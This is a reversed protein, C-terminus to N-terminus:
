WGPGPRGTVERVSELIHGDACVLRAQVPAGCQRHELIVPVGADGALYKDGFATLAAVVPFLDLGMESLRYEFRQRQGPERYPAKVLVGRDVLLNLRDTLVNRAIGLHRQLDDFRRLGGFIDRLVLMSWRDGVFDITRQASCNPSPM